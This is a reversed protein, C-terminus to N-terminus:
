SEQQQPELPERALPQHALPVQLQLALPLQALTKPLQKM